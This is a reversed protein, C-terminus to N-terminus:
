HMGILNTDVNDTTGDAGGHDSFFTRIWVPNVLLGAM